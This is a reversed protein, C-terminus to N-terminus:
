EIMVVGENWYAKGSAEWDFQLKYRGTANKAMSVVQQNHSDPAIAVSFDKRNDTPCYFNITGTIGQLAPPYQIKVMDNEVQWQLPTPLSKANNIKDIKSQFKLEEAYYEDTVLDIKQTVSMGVLVLIGIVFLGYVGWIGTGWSIKM